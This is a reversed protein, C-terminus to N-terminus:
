SAPTAAGDDTAEPFGPAGVGMRIGTVPAISGDSGEGYPSIVAVVANAPDRFTLTTEPSDDVFSQGDESVQLHGDITLTGTYAGSEDSLAQVGTFRGSREGTSEWTGFLPSLFMVGAPGNEIIPPSAVFSGDAFFTEPSAGAPAMALWTGVLPHGALVSVEEQAATRLSGRGIAAAGVVLMVVTLIFTVRRM